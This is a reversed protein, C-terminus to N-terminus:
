KYFVFLKILKQLASCYDKTMVQFGKSKLLVKLYNNLSFSKQHFNVWNMIALNKQKMNLFYKLWHLKLVRSLIIINFNWSYSIIWQLFQHIIKFKINISLLKYIHIPKLYIRSWLVQLNFKNFNKQFLSHTWLSIILLM